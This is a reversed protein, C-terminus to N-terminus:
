EWYIKQPNRRDFENFINADKESSDFKVNESKKLNKLQQPSLSIGNIEVKM